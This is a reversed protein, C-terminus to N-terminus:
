FPTEGGLVAEGRGAAALRIKFFGRSARGSGGAPVRLRGGMFGEAELRQVFRRESGVFEGSREAWKRWSTFLWATPTFDAVGVECCDELWAKFTDEQDLYGSTASVVSPPPSLKTRQWELCGDVMWRLIQPWEAKLKESLYGDREQEPITVNFPVLNMRRRMAEDVSRLGPKHNGFVVLKFQPLYEFFDQRMFRAAIRDGGTLLKIRSEAWRRGEDTEVATVMRAGVLMALETPHRDNPSATFTEILATRHLTGLIGSITSVFTSKGNSGTGYLFFMAHEVTVGTLMYGCARRLYSQLGADGGTVRELFNVWARPAEGGPPSPTAGTSKTVLDEPRNERVLGTKLDVTGGPTALLWPDSNLREHSARIRADESALSVVAARTRASAVARALRVEPATAAAERCVARARDFAARVDDEGWRSGDWIYWIGLRDVYRVERAHREAFKLALSEESLEPPVPGDYEDREDAPPPPERPPTSAVLEALELFTGGGDAWDVVDGKPGLRPLAVVKVSSAGGRGARRAVDDAHRKGPDDNDPLVIVKRGLFVSDYEDRWKGAGGVSCTAVLGWSMLLDVKAEGEVVYLPASLDALVEPLRYVVRRADGLRWTYGSRAGADPRRQRIKKPRGPADVRVVEYLLEGREDRYQFVETTEESSEPSRKPSPAATFGERALWGAPDEGPAQRKILDVIGGGEQVEYDWWTGTKLDLKLSGKTGFRLESPTSLQANPEGLLLRAIAPAAAVFDLKGRPERM